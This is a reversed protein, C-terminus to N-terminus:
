PRIGWLKMANERMVRRLAAAGLNMREIKQIEVAPSSRPWGSGYLVREAGVVNIAGDIVGAVQCSTELMLNSAQKLAPVVDYWFDSYGAHGMVFPIEPFQRALEALQFPEACVPTGTSSYVPKRHRRCTELLPQVISETLRFGQRRPHLFLGCLGRAFAGEIAHVADRGFWPNAVALGFLRGRYRTVLDVMQLNGAVNHVAVAADAPAVVACAIGFRDMEDLMSPVAGDTEMSDLRMASDVIKM